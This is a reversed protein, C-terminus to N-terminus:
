QGPVQGARRRPTGLKHISEHHHADLLATQALAAAPGWHATHTYITDPDTANLGYLWSTAKRVALDCTAVRARGLTRILIWDASWAGIGPLATLARVAADDTHTQLKEVTLTGDAVATAASKLYRVKPGSIQLGRLVSSSTEALTEADLRHAVDDGIVYSRGLLHVLRARLTAAWALNVQQATICRVLAHLLDSQRLIAIAPRRTLLAAVAHDRAILNDMAVSDYFFQGRALDALEREDLEAPGTAFIQTDTAIDIRIPVTTGRHPVTRLLTTGNWRDILDDGHRRYFDLSASLDFPFPALRIHTHTTSM